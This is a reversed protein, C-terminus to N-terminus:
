KFNLTHEQVDESKCKCNRINLNEGCQPCLGKCQESCLKKFPINLYIEGFIMDKLNIMNQSIYEIEEDKASYLFSLTSDIPFQYELLCRDCPLSIKTSFNLEILYEDRKRSINLFFKLDDIFTFNDNSLKYPEIVGEVRKEKDIDSLNIPVFNHLILTNM